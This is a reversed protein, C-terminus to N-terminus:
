TRDKPMLLKDNWNPYTVEWIKEIKNDKIEAIFIIHYTQARGNKSSLKIAVRGVVKDNKAFLDDTSIVKLSKLKKYIVEQENKFKEYNELENNDVLQFNRSFYIDFKSNDLKEAYEAWMERILAVNANEQPSSVSAFTLESSLLICLGIILNKM